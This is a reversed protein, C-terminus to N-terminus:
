GGAQATIKVLWHHLPVANQFHGFCADVFDPTTVVAREIRPHSVHLGNYRLLDARPHQPDHGRPVRKYHEGGIEYAGASRVAALAAELEEGWQEDVVADRYATLM